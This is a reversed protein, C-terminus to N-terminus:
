RSESVDGEHMISFCDSYITEGSDLKLGHIRDKGWDISTIKKGVLVEEWFEKNLEQEKWEAKYKVNM